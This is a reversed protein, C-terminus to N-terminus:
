HKIKNYVENNWRDKKAQVQADVTSMYGDIETTAEPHKIKFAEMKAKLTNISDTYKSLEGYRDQTVRDIYKDAEVMTNDFQDKWGKLSKKDDALEADEYFDM